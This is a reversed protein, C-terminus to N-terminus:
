KPSQEPQRRPLLSACLALARPMVRTMVIVRASTITGFKSFEQRLRDDDISDDLNKIYINIGNYKNLQEMRQQRLEEEREHKKQARGVYVPKGNILSGNLTEVAKQADEPNEFNVFGFGKSEGKENTMIVASTTKGFESFKQALQEQTFATDLNKVFINTFKQKSEEASREKKPKFPGVFVKKGNLLMGNVKAVAQDAEEQTEYHVYGYGKSAANQDVEVKCSVIHGFASFTEYLAQNDISKDLNKIFINGVGSKRKSPDRHSWMIRCQKGLINSYNLTEVAREADAYSHFNVYAYGLSRRTIADRCVRISAVPGATKFIEFLLAETVEPSLDGVYLSASAYSQTSM